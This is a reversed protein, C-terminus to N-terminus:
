IAASPDGSRGASDGPRTRVVYTGALKDHWTQNRDDWAAWLYGLYFIVGSFWATVTRGLGRLVGPRAAHEDIIRLGVIRKGLSWGISNFTWNVAFGLVALAIAVFALVAFLDAFSEELVVDDLRGSEAGFNFDISAISVIWIAYWLGGWIASDILAAGARVGFGALEYTRDGVTILSGLQREVMVYGPRPSVDPALTSEAPGLRHGCSPCFNM